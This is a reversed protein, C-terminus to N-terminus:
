VGPMDSVEGGTTGGGAREGRGSSGSGALRGRNAANTM